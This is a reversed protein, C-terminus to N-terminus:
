QKSENPTWYFLNFKSETLLTKRDLRYGSRQRIKEILILKAPSTKLDRAVYSIAGILLDAVQIMTVDKSSVQQVREIIHRDFDYLSNCIVDKLKLVKTQSRTDKIDLYIRYKNGPELITQITRFFMKYYWDDHSQSFAPHNLGSKQAIVARFHLDSDDFFYDIVDKYFEVKAPSVKTWKIEFHPALSHKQRLEKIRLSLAKTKSEPCWLAGLVMIPKNDHELHCSEDCYINYTESM